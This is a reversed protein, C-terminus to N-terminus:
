NLRPLWPTRDPHAGEQSSSCDKSSQRSSSANLKRERFQRTIKRDFRHISCNSCALVAIGAQENGPSPDKM